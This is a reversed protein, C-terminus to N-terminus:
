TAKESIFDTALIEATEVVWEFPSFVNRWRRCVTDLKAHRVCEMLSHSPIQTFRNFRSVLCFGLICLHMQKCTFSMYFCRVDNKPSGEPTGSKTMAGVFLPFDSLPACESIRRRWAFTLNNTTRKTSHIGSDVFVQKSGSFSRQFIHWPKKQPSPRKM